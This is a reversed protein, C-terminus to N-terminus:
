SLVSRYLEVYRQAAVSWSLRSAADLGASRLEERLMLDDQLRLLADSWAGVDTPDIRLAASPEGVEDLGSGTAVVVPVGRVMAEGAPIGFGEVFSPVAVFAAGHFLREREDNTIPGLMDVGDAGRLAAAISTGDYGVAGAVKWRLDLGNQRARRFAELLGLHNKRPEITSITLFYSETGTAERALARPQDIGPRIVHVPSRVTPLHHLLRGKTYDSVCVIAAPRTVSALRLLASKYTHVSRPFWEPHDLFCLDHVTVLTRRRELPATRFDPLHVLDADREAFPLLFQQEFIRAGRRKRDGTLDRVVFQDHGDLLAPIARRLGESHAGIGDRGEHAVFLIKM